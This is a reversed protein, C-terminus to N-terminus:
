ATGREAGPHIRFGSRAKHPFSGYFGEAGPTSILDMRETGSRRFAEEVLRRDVALLSLHAQLVGDGQAQAFGVVGGDAVAVVATAGPARHAAATMEPNAPFSEWGEEACLRLVGPLHGGADFAVYQTQEVANM